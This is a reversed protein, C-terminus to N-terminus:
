RELRKGLMGFRRLNARRECNDVGLRVAVIVSEREGSENKDILTSQGRRAAIRKIPRM